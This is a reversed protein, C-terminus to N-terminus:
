RVRPDIIAYVIDLLFVTIALLVAYITTAGVIVPSDNTSIAAYILTGMGPWTFIRETIIGGMWSAILGLALSTIIPSLAPRLIYRREIIKPPLGKVRAVDVYDETSHILLYTRISYTSLFFGSILISLLPLVLHKLVSLTYSLTDKPPPVDIMGGYPLVKLISAFLIILFIGYFWGPLSSLPALLSFIKDLKSGYCRSLYLGAILTSFFMIIQSSTFLLISPPLRELIIIKVERSGSNSVLNFSRGLNLTLADKLYIFSRLIFPKDLGLRKVEKQIMDQALRDREEATLHYFKPDGRLRDYVSESIEMIKIRDVLGGMNAIIITLYLAIIFSIFISLGRLGIFRLIRRYPKQVTRSFSM